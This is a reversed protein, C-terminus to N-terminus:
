PIFRWAYDSYSILLLWYMLVTLTCHNISQNVSQSTSPKWCCGRSCALQFFLVVGYTILAMKNM